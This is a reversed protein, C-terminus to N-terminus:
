MERLVREMQTSDNLHQTDYADVLVSLALVRAKLTLALTTARRYHRAAAELQRTREASGKPALIALRTAEAGACLESAAGDTAADAIVQVCPAPQQPPATNQSPPLAVSVSVLLISAFMMPGEAARLCRVHRFPTHRPSVTPSTTD